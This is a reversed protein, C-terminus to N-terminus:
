SLLQYIFRRFLLSISTFFANNEATLDCTWSERVYPGWDAAGMGLRDETLTARRWTMFRRLASFSRDCIYLFRSNINSTAKFDCSWKPVLWDADAYSISDTLTNVFQLSCSICKAARRDVEQPLDNRCPM